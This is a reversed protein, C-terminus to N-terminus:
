SCGCAVKMTFFASSSVIGVRNLARLTSWKWVIWFLDVSSLDARESVAGESALRSAAACLRTPHSVRKRTRGKAHTSSSQPQFSHKMRPGARVRRLLPRRLKPIMAHVM